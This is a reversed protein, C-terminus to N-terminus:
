GVFALSGRVGLLGVLALAYVARRPMEGDSAMARGFM